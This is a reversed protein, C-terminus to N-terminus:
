FSGLRLVDFLWQTVARSLLGRAYAWIISRKLLSRM